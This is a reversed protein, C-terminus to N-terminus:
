CRHSPMWNRGQLMDEMVQSLSISFVIGALASCFGGFAYVIIKTRAVLLGMLLASQENNGIAYVTRGFLTFNALYIIVVLLPGILSPIYLYTKEFLPVPFPIAKSPKFSASVQM